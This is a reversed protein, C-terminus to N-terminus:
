PRSPQVWFLEDCPVNMYGEKIGHWYVHVRDDPEWVLYSVSRVIGPGCLVVDGKVLKGAQTAVVNFQVSSKDGERAAIGM